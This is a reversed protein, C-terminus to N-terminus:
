PFVFTHKPYVWKQGSPCIVDDRVPAVTPWVGNSFRSARRKWGKSLLMAKEKEEGGKEPWM